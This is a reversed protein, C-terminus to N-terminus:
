LRLFYRSRSRIARSMMGPRATEVSTMTPKGPSVYSSKSSVRATISAARNSLAKMNMKEGRGPVAAAFIVASKTGSSTIRSRNARRLSSWFRIEPSFFASRTPALTSTSESSWGALVVRHSGGPGPGALDDVDGALVAGPGEELHLDLLSMLVM